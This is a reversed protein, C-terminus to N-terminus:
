WDDSSTAQSNKSMENGKKVSENKSEDPSNGLIFVNVFRRVVWLVFMFTPVGIIIGSILLSIKVGFIGEFLAALLVIPWVIVGFSASGLIAIVLVTVIIEVGFKQGFVGVAIRGIVIAAVLLLLLHIM